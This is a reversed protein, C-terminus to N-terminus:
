LLNRGGEFFEQYKSPDALNNKDDWQLSVVHNQGNAM